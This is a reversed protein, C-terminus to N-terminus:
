ASTGLLRSRPKKAKTAKAKTAKAAMAVRRRAEELSIGGKSDCECTEDEGLGIANALFSLPGAGSAEADDAGLGIAGLIDGLPGAGEINDEGLGIADLISSLPGAGRAKKAMAKKAPAKKAPAKKAPAKKVERRILDALNAPEDAQAAAEAAQEASAKAEAAAMQAALRQRVADETVRKAVDLAYSAAAKAAPKAHQIAVRAFDAVRSGVNRLFDGLAAGGAIDEPDVEPLDEAAGFMERADALIEAVRTEAPADQLYKKALHLAAEDDVNASQAIAGGLAYVKAKSSYAGMPMKKTPGVAARVQQVNQRM